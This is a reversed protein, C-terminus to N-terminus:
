LNNNHLSFRQRFFAFAGLGYIFSAVDATSATCTGDARCRPLRPTFPPAAEAGLRATSSLTYARRVQEALLKRAEFERPTTKQKQGAAISM